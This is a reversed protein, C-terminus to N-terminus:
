SSNNIVVEEVECVCSGMGINGELLTSLPRLIMCVKKIAPNEMNRKEIRYHQDNSTEVAEERSMGTKEMLEVIKDIREGVVKTEHHDQQQDMAQCAAVIGVGLIVVAGTVLVKTQYVVM